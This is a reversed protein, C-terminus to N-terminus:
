DVQENRAARIWDAHQKECAQVYIDLQFKQLEFIQYPLLCLARFLGTALLGVCVATAIREATSFLGGSIALLACALVLTLIFLSLTITHDWLIYIIRKRLLKALHVEVNITPPKGSALILSMIFGALIGAVAIVATLFESTLPTEVLLLAAISAAFFPTGSVALKIQSRKSQRAIQRMELMAHWSTIWSDPLIQTLPM